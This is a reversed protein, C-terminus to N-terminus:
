RYGAWLYLLFNDYGEQCLVMLVSDGIDQGNDYDEQCLVMLM